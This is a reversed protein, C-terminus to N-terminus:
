VRCGACRGLILPSPSGGQAQGHEELWGAQMRNIEERRRISDVQGCLFGGELLGILFGRTRGITVASLMAQAEDKQKASRHSSAAVCIARGDVSGFDEECGFHAGNTM